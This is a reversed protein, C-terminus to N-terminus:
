ETLEILVGGTTRPHLFAIRHNGAGVRPREDVLRYGAHRCADLARDLDPVRYCVHHIGPGRREIFRGVPSDPTLPQLLEVDVPGFPLSV